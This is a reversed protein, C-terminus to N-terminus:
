KKALGLAKQMRDILAQDTNTIREAAAQQDQWKVSEWTM